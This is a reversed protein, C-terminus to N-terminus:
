YATGVVSISFLASHELSGNNDYNGTLIEIM